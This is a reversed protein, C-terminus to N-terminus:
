EDRGSRLNAPVLARGCSTDSVEMELRGGPLRRVRAVDDRDTGHVDVKRSLREYYEVSAAALGSRRKRLADALGPGDIAYWERPLRSVADAIVADDLRRALDAATEEFTARDIGALLWRDVEAGQAMFGEFNAYHDKWEMFKPHTARAMSLLLGGFKSFAQDRDEPLPEFPRGEGRRLWRWQKNHRDWDGIWLDFLRARM